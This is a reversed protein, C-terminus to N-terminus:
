RKFFIAQGTPLPMLLGDHDYFYKDAVERTESYGGHGYDDLLVIGGSLLKPVFHELTKKTPMSSNLDIHLWSIDNPGPNEQFIEPIFGKIFKCNDGFRKLNQQTQKISLYSYSGVAGSEIATLYKAQMGSWADYLYATYKLKASIEKNLASLAYNITLGDCVGAEVFNIESSKTIKIAFKASWYVLYHRWRLTKLIESPELVYTGNKKMQTLDFNGMEIDQLLGTDVEAFDLGTPDFSNKVDWPLFHKSTMGWGAFRPPKPILMIRLRKGKKITQRVIKKLTSFKERWTRSQNILAHFQNKYM